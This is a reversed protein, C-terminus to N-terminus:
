VTLAPISPGNATGDMTGTTSSAIPATISPRVTVWAGVPAQAPSLSLNDGAQAFSTATLMSALLTALLCGAAAGRGRGVARPQRYTSGATKPTQKSIRSGMATGGSRHEAM